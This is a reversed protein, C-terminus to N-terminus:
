KSWEEKLYNYVRKAIESNNDKQFAVIAEPILEGSDAARPSIEKRIISLLQQYDIDGYEDDPFCFLFVEKEISIRERYWLYLQTDSILGEFTIGARKEALCNVLDHTREHYSNALAPNDLDVNTNGAPIATNTIERKIIYTGNRQKEFRINCGSESGSRLIAPKYGPFDNEFQKRVKDDQQIIHGKVPGNNTSVDDSFRQADITKQYQEKTYNSKSWVDQYSGKRPTYVVLCDCNRHRRFVDNGTDSVEYYDYTGALKRCWPCTKGVATRIIKPRLGSRYQFDANKRVSSDYYGKANTEIASGMEEKVSEYEKSSVYRTIGDTKEQDYKASIGNLGIGARKNVQTFTDECFTSILYYNKYLIDDFLKKAEEYSLFGKEDLFSNNLNNFLVTKRLSGIEKAYQFADEAESNGKELKSRLLQIKNNGAYGKRFQEELEELFEESIKSM